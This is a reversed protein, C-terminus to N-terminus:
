LSIQSPYPDRDCHSNQRASERKQVVIWTEQWREALISEMKDLQWQSILRTSKSSFKSM